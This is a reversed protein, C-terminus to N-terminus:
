ELMGELLAAARELTARDAPALADLRESLLADKRTRIAELLNRGAPTVTILASRGDSPDPARSVLGQEELRCAVRTVTPRQVRERAALETPTLPGFRDITSLLRPLVPSSLDAEPVSVLLHSRFTVVALAAAVALPDLEPQSSLDLWLADAGAADFAAAERLWEGLESPEADLLVGVKVGPSPQAHTM